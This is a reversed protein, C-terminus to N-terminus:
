STRNMLMTFLKSLEDKVKPNREISRLSVLGADFHIQKVDTCIAALDLDQYMQQVIAVEDSGIPERKSFIGQLVKRQRDDARAIAQIYLLTKKRQVIDGGSRKGTRSEDGFADLYDDQIQFAIGMHEGCQFLHQIEIENAGGAIGGLAMAGGILVGTKYRIMKLYSKEDVEEIREFDIDFQQGECIQISVQNFLTYAHNWDSEDLGQLLYQYTMILLADGSLIGANLGFKSHVSPRGRRLDAQDMIDDHLLSFNHFLEVALAQPLARHWDNDFLECCLLCLLPRIKKSPQSLIYRVPEYLGAPEKVQTKSLLYNQFVQQYPEFSQM